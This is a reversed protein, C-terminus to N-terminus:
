VSNLILYISSLFKFINSAMSIHLKKRIFNNAYNPVWTTGMVCGAKQFYYIVNFTFNNLTLILFLFKISVKTTIPKKPLSNLAEIAAKICKHNPFNM